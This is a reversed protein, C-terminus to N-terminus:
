QDLDASFAHASNSLILSLFREQIYHLFTFTKFSNLNCAQLTLTNNHKM